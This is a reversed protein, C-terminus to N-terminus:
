RNTTDNNRPTHREFLNKVTIATRESRKLNENNAKNKTSVAQKKGDKLREQCERRSRQSHTVLARCAPVRQVDSEIMVM